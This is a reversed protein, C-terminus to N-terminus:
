SPIAVLVAEPTHTYLLSPCFDFGNPWAIGGGEEVFVQAFYAPEQLPASLADDAIFPQMNVVKQRGDAFQLQLHYDPLPTVAIIQPMM